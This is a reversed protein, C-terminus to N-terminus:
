HGREIMTRKLLGEVPKDDILLRTGDIQTDTM